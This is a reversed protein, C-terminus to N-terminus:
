QDQANHSHMLSWGEHWVVAYHAELPITSSASIDKIRLSDMDDFVSGLYLSPVAVCM